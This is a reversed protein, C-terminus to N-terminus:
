LISQMADHVNCGGVVQNQTPSFQTHTNLLFICGLFLDKVAFSAEVSVQELVVCQSLASMYPLIWYVCM